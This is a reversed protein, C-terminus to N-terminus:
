IKPGSRQAQGLFYTMHLLSGLVLLMEGLLESQSFDKFRRDFCPKIIMLLSTLM